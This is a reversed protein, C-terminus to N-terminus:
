VSHDPYGSLQSLTCNGHTGVNLHMVCISVSVLTVDDVLSGCIPFINWRQCSTIFHNLKMWLEMKGGFSTNQNSYDVWTRFTIFCLWTKTWQNQLIFYVCNWRKQLCEAVNNETLIGRMYEKTCVGFSKQHRVVYKTNELISKKFYSSNMQGNRPM